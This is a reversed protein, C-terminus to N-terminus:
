RLPNTIALPQSEASVPLIIQPFYVLALLLKNKNQIPKHNTNPADPEYLRPKKNERMELLLISVSRGRKYGKKQILKEMNFIELRRLRKKEEEEEQAKRWKEGVWEWWGESQKTDWLKFIYWKYLWIIDTTGNHALNEEGRGDVVWKLEKWSKLCYKKKWSNVKKM